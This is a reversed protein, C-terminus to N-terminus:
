KPAAAKSTKEKKAAAKSKLEDLSKQLKEHSERLERVERRLDRVEEPVLRIEDDLRKLAAQALRALYNDRDDAAIPELRERAAPDKLEGLAQIAAGRLVQRPHNLYKALFEFAADQRRGRQSIKALSLMGEIVDRPDLQQERERIAQMLDKALSPDNLDRAIIFASRVPENAWTESALAKRAAASSEKGQYHVLGRLAAAVVAPNKEEDTIETLRKHADEHYCEALEEAIRYRVRADPQEKSEALAAIAERTHIKRLAAAAEGRVAYFEDSNLAEQLAAVNAKSKGEALVECALVRGIGDEKNKLQARLMKDPKEFKVKALITYRPDFRVIEPEAPLTVYFDHRRGDITIREDTAKGDAMFRLVTELEFLLVKDNTEQTQEVTVHAQKEEALWRYTVKLEPVGGHYVWQDFFKDLTEGTVEEFAERLDETEVASLAHRKLYTHIAQRYLDEGVKNRLMHLVWSGKPYNRFDFQEGPDKYERYVIPRLDKGQPFIDDRADLYLGYNFADQGFQHREHLLSYYTAFGENLWLHSWDKCTVYDGFWQHAMEHADLSRSSRINETEDAWITRQTLTTISTNEMGGWHYDACTVQDYKPWPFPVGIEKEYFAMIDQTDRFANAAYKARSPQTYFGLPVDRHKAELKELYGAVMCILYTVHPKDMRWHVAKMDDPEGKEDVLRGNSVVTMDNPVHCIIETTSRENPYDFSPFWHRAEHPEGQTWCSTDSEPLKMEPTRFYLGQVPEASYEIEVHAKAGVDIPEDFVITISKGDNSHDRVDRSARVDRVDLEIADLRLSKLPKSIPTFEIRATGAVTHEKFNPTVDLKIHLIDVERDPAYQRGNATALDGPMPVVQHVRGCYRCVNGGHGFENAAALSGVFLLAAALIAAALRLSSM